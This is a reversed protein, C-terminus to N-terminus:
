KKKTRVFSDIKKARNTSSCFPLGPAPNRPHQRPRATALCGRFGGQAEPSQGQARKSNGKANGKAQEKPKNYGKELEKKPL